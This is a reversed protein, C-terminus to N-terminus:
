VYVKGTFKLIGFVLTKNAKGRAIKKIVRERKFYSENIEIKSSFQVQGKM